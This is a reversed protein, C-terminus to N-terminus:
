RAGVRVTRLTLIPIEAPCFFRVPLISWGVGASIFVAEGKSNMKFGRDYMKNKVPLTPAYDLFPIRVQGSVAIVIKKKVSVLDYSYPLRTM